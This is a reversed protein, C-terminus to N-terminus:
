QSVSPTIRENPNIKTVKFPADPWVDIGPKSRAYDRARLFMRVILEHDSTSRPDLRDNNEWVWNYQLMLGANASNFVGQLYRLMYQQYIPPAYKIGGKMAGITCWKVASEDEPEVHRGNADLAEARVTWGSEILSAALDLYHSPPFIPTSPQV